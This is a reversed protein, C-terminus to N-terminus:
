WETIAGGPAPTDFVPELVGRSKVGLIDNQVIQDPAKDEAVRNFTQESVRQAYKRVRRLQQDEENLVPVELVEGGPAVPEVVIYYNKGAPNDDPIRWFGTDEGPRSVIRLAYEANLQTSLDRLAALQMRATARDGTAIAQEGRSAIGAIRADVAPDIAVQQTSASLEALTRPLRRWEASQPGAVAFQWALAAAVVAGAGWVLPPLWTKRRVYLKALRVQLSDAPPRYVFRQEALAAVGDRLIREPVEIGQATYIEKLREILEAERGEADLEAGVLQERHRLTDVVDMALMVDDLKQPQGPPADASAVAPVPAVGSM